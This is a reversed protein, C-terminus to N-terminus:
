KRIITPEPIEQAGYLASELAAIVRKGVGSLEYYSYAKRESVHEYYREVLLNDILINLHSSLLSSNIGTQQEIESFSLRQHNKLEKLIEQRNPSDLGKIIFQLDNAFGIGRKKEM